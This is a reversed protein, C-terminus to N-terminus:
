IKLTDSHMFFINKPTFKTTNRFGKGLIKPSTIKKKINRFDEPFFSNQYKIKLYNKLKIKHIPLDQM